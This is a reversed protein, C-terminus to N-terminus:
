LLTPSFIPISVHPADRAQLSSALLVYENNAQHRDSLLFLVDFGLEKGEAPQRQEQGLLEQQWIDDTDPVGEKSIVLAKIEEQEDTTGHQRLYM